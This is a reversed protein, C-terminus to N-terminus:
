LLTRLGLFLSHEKSTLRPQVRVPLFHFCKHRQHKYGTESCGRWPPPMPSTIFLFLVSISGLGAQNESGNGSRIDPSVQCLDKGGTFFSSHQSISSVRPRTICPQSHPSSRLYTSLSSCGPNPFDISPVKFARSGCLSTDSFATM